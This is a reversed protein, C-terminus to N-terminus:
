KEVFDKLFNELIKMWILSNLIVNKKILIFMNLKPLNVKNNMNNLPLNINNNNGMNNYLDRWNMNNDMMMPNMMNINNNMMPNMMNINNNMMM